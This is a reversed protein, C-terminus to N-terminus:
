WCSEVERKNLVDVGNIISHELKARFDIIPNHTWILIDADKGEEIAGVRNEIGLLIAPAKTMMYLVEEQPVGYKYYLIGNWLFSEKGSTTYDACCSIGVTIEEELMERIRQVNVQESYPTMTETVDGLFVGRGKPVKCGYAGTYVLNIDYEKLALEIAEMDSKTNCHFLLPIEKKLVKAFAEEEMKLPDKKEESLYKQTRVFLDRLLAISGMKTMPMQNRKGYTNKINESLSGRMAISERVLMQYPHRGYTKFAAVQGGIVNSIGPSLGATTVGYEFVRQFLMGDQDFSYVVNMQPTVPNSNEELDKDEWGPGIGGWQNLAEVFGPCVFKGEADIVEDRPDVEIHERLEVIKGDKVLIDSRKGNKDRGNFITANKIIM